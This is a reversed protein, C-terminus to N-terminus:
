KSLEAEVVHRYFAEIGRICDTDNFLLHRRSEISRRCQDYFTKDTGLRSAIDIYSDVDFAITEVIELRKLMANAHRGRMFAGPRTVVPLGCALGELTTKGGSWSIPDLLVDSIQNLRLFDDPSLRPQFICFKEMCLSHGNFSNEVRKRFQDTIVKNPNSIFVFRANKVKAAIRPYIEDYQPLYKFLSQSTLFIFDTDALGFRARTPRNEPLEPANFALALNPILVLTESYHNAAGTPEMLESSLYYDVTPLGTTVPHGWGKCQVPALRLGALQTSPGFMGIDTFTLIHLDDDRIQQAMAEINGPIHHFRDFTEKFMETLEDSESGIYYGYVEFQDKDHNALWGMLFHGVTHARMFSSLYGIRIKKNKKVKPMSLPRVWQPFNASMVRHVFGGYKKQLEVDNMGQYQLYFNTFSGIGELAKQCKWPEDLQVKRILEDMGDSLRKRHDAIDSEQNYLIPLSLFYYWWVNSIDPSQAVAERLFKMGEDYAGVQKLLRGTNILAEPNGPSLSLAKQYAELAEKCENREKHLHGLNVHAMPDGPAVAISRYLMTFAQDHAGLDKFLGALNNLALIHDPKRRLTQTYADMAANLRGAAYLANALNHYADIDDPNLQICRQYCEVAKELRGQSKFANALNYTAQVHDPKLVLAKEFNSFARDLVGKENYTVGMNYYLDANAPDLELAKRYCFIAEDHHSCQQQANGLNGWVVGMDPNIALVREYCVVAEEPYGEHLFLDGLGHYIRYNDSDSSLANPCYSVAMAMKGMEKLILILNKHINLDLPNAEGAKRLWKIAEDGNGQQHAMIGMLHLVDPQEPSRSLIETCITQASTLQGSRHLAAAKAFLSAGHSDSQEFDNYQTQEM